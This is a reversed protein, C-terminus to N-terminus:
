YGADSDVVNRLPLGGLYRGVNDRILATEREWYRRSYASTHPTLLVNPLKWLPSEPALPEREFVDLAAGRLREERLAAVLAAEDVIAGRAVNVLVASRKMRALAAADIMGVTAPTEPVAVVVYDSEALLRELGPAGYVVDDAAEAVGAAGGAGGAAGVPEGAGEVAAAESARRRKLAVVRAGLARARRAVERGVGGYGVVGVTSGAVERIPSDDADFPAKGWEGRAQSRVAWDLGRAFHLLAALVSEAMPAAQVGASNTFVVDAARMEPTLSGRVGAAGTHVWRLRRGVRLIEAPIGFGFYVEASRVAELAERSAGHGGDGRGDVPTELVVVDWEAPFAARIRASAEPPVRWIPRADSLDIVARRPDGKTM